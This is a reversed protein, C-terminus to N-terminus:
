QHSAVYLLLAFISGPLMGLALYPLVGHTRPAALGALGGEVPGTLADAFDRATAYRRKPERELARCIVANLEMSIAPDLDRPPTAPNRLRANMVALANLGSFPVTGTLMEYLVIGLSYVDSRADGRKGLVQEPAIYDPTGNAPRQRGRRAALGFDLIKVHGRADVVINEPKVDRHVVGQGHMYDLADTVELAIRIAEDQDFSTAGNLIQRLPRGEAWEMVIAPRGCEASDLFEVLGPHSLRRGIEMERRFQKLLAPDREVEPNPIKVAVARGTREDVGRYVTGMGGRGVEAEIRYPGLREM